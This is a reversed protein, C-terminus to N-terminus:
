QGSPKFLPGIDAAGSLGVCRNFLKISVKNFDKNGVKFIHIFFLQSKKLFKGVFFGKSLVINM